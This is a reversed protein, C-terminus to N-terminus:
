YLGPRARASHVGRCRPRLVMRVLNDGLKRNALLQVVAETRKVAASDHRESVIEAAGGGDGIQGLAAAGGGDFALSIKEGANRNAINGAGFARRQMAAAAGHHPLSANRSSIAPETRQHNLRLDDHGRLLASGGSVFLLSVPLTIGM